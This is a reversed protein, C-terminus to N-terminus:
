RAHKEAIDAICACVYDVEALTLHPYLPLTVVRRGAYATNPFHQASLGLSDRYYSLDLIPKYHVGCEVGYEAMLRIFRNRNIKWQSLHLRVIFLHWGHRVHKEVVPTELCGSLPSLNSIYRQALRQRKAQEKEFVSLQGLGVAAHLESMNAKLGPLIADYEWKRQKKRQYAGSTLGHRALLRVFEILPKYRSLVMGGEGCALNKTVQFSIVAADAHKPVPRGRHAAGISHAADAVLPIKRSNCIKRLADYDAPYAGVDVPMVAATRGSIKRSVEDPDINLSVPDIDAFVPRAGTSIIAEVTAVFTFPTTVVEKGSGVGITRLVLQLGVSASSVAVGYRTQMLDCIAKEFAAIRPGPSLWGSRLTDAAEKIAEQSLKIDYLPIRRKRKGTNM